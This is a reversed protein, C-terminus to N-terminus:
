KNKRANLYKEKTKFILKIIEVPKPYGDELKLMAIHLHTKGEPLITRRGTRGVTGIKDGPKVIDGPNVTVSDLHSYYFIRDYTVDYIKVLKGGRLRSGVRWSTDTAFVVGGSMSVVDVFKGTSDDLLNKDTDLIMIDHAPHGWSESGQFYDYKDVEYDDGNQRHTVTTFNALPFVYEYELYKIGKFNQKIEKSLKDISIIFEEKDFKEMLVIKRDIASWQEALEKIRDNAFSDSFVIIL